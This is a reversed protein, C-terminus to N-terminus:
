HLSSVWRFLGQHQSLNLAPPSPSSLPHSLQIADSVWHVRTQTFEPFQHHVPLGPTSYDMPDCFTLCSQAVSSFQLSYIKFTRVVLFFNYSHLTIFTLKNHSDNQLMNIDFWINYVKFKCLSYVLQIGIYSSFIKIFLLAKWVLAKTLDM